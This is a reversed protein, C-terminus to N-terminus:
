NHLYLRIKKKFKVENSFLILKYQRLQYNDMNERVTIRSTLKLEPLYVIYQFLEDDRVIKDFCYGDYSKELITPDNYCTNLLNCDNQIKKIARMTINIYDLQQIWIQFFDSASQSLSFLDISQQLKIMNLLDVLRRIPSTIHVYADMELFEHKLITDQNSSIDVYHGCSSNWVTIFKTVEEPVNDPLITQKLNAFTSRFIGSNSKLLEKASFYNMLIMLYSVVDHSNKVSSIYKYKKSLKKTTDLLFSYNSYRLLDLEEYVFNKHVKIICNSYKM